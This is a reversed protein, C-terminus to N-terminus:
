INVALDNFSTNKGYIFQFQTNSYVFEDITLNIKIKNIVIEFSDNTFM